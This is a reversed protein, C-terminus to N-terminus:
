RKSSTSSIAFPLHRTFADPTVPHLGAQYCTRPVLARAEPTSAPGRSSIPKIGGGASAPKPSSSERWSRLPLPVDDGLHLSPSLRPRRAGSGGSKKWAVSGRCAANGKGTGRDMRLDQGDRLVRWCRRRGSILGSSRSPEEKTCVETLGKGVPIRGEM